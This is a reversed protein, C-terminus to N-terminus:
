IFGKRIHFLLKYDINVEISYLGKYFLCVTRCSSTNIFLRQRQLNDSTRCKGVLCKGVM